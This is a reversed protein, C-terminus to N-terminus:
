RGAPKSQWLALVRELEAKTEADPNLSLGKRLMALAGKTDKRIGDGFHMLDALSACAMAVGGDCSRRYYRAARAKDAQVGSGDYYAAGLSGCARAHGAECARGLYDAAKVLDTRVTDVIANSGEDRYFDGDRYMMGVKYCDAANGRSCGAELAATPSVKGPRYGATDAASVPSTFLLTIAAVLM